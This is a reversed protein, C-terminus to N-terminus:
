YPTAYWWSLSNEETVYLQRLCKGRCNWHTRLIRLSSPHGCVAPVASCRAHSLAVISILYCASVLEAEHSKPVIMM